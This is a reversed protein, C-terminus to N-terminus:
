AVREAAVSGSQNVVHAHEFEGWSGRGGHSTLGLGLDELGSLAGSKGNANEPAEGQGVLPKFTTIGDRTRRALRQGNGGRRYLVFPEIGDPDRVARAVRRTGARRQGDKLRNGIQKVGADVASATGECISCGVGM